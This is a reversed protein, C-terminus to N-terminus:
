ISALIIEEFWIEHSKIKQGTVDQELVSGRHPEFGWFSSDILQGYFDYSHIPVEQDCSSRAWGLQRRSIVHLFDVFDALFFWQFQLSGFLEACVGRRWCALLTGQAKCISFCLIELTGLLAQLSRRSYFYTRTWWRHLAKSASVTVISWNGTTM